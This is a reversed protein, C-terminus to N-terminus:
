RTVALAQATPKGNVESYQVRVRQGVKPYNGGIKSLDIVLVKGDRLKLSINKRARDVNAVIGATLTSGLRDSSNSKSSKVSPAQAPAPTASKAAPTSRDTQASVNASPSLLAAFGALAATMLFRPGM